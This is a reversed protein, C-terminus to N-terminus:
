KMKIFRMIKYAHFIVGIFFLTILLYGMISIDRYRDALYYGIFISGAIIAVLRLIIPYKIKAYKRIVIYGILYIVVIGILIVTDTM